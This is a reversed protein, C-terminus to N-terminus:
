ICVVPVLWNYKPVNKPVRLCLLSGALKEEGQQSVSYSGPTWNTWHRILSHTFGTHCLSKQGKGSWYPTPTSTSIHPIIEKAKPQLINFGKAYTMLFFILHFIFVEHPFNTM